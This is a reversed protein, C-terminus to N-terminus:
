PTGLTTGTQTLQTSPGSFATRVKAIGFDLVKVWESGDTWEILFLNEPKLDRHVINKSHALELTECVQLMIRAARSVELPAERELLRALSEGELYEMVLYPSGDAALGADTVDVIHPSGVASAARAERLFRSVMDQDQVLQTHLLKVAMTSGIVMHEAEFVAGMGGQDILRVLRYKGDIVDGINM